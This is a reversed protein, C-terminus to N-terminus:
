QGGTLSDHNFVEFIQKKRPKGKIGIFPAFELIIILKKKFHLKVQTYILKHWAIM